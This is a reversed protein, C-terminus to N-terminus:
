NADNVVRNIASFQSVTAPAAFFNGSRAILITRNFCVIVHKVSTNVFGNNRFFIPQSGLLLAFVCVDALRFCVTKFVLM